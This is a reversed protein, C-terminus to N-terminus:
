SREHLRVIAQPSVQHGASTGIEPSSSQFLVWWFSFSYGSSELSIVRINKNCECLDFWLLSLIDIFIMIIQVLRNRVRRYNKEEVVAVSVIICCCLVLLHLFLFLIFFLVNHHMLFRRHHILSCVPLPVLNLYM